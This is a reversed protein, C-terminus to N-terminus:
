AFIGFIQLIESRLNSSPAIRQRIQFYGSYNQKLSLVLLYFVDCQTRPDEHIQQCQFLFHYISLDFFLHVSLKYYYTTAARFHIGLHKM